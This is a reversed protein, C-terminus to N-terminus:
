ITMMRATYVVSQANNSGSRTFGLPLVTFIGSSYKGHGAPLNEMWYQPEAPLITSASAQCTHPPSFMDFKTTCNSSVSLPLKFHHLICFQIQFNNSLYHLASSLNLSQGITFM